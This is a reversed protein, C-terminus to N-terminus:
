QVIKGPPLHHRELGHFDDDEARDGGFGSDHDSYLPVESM